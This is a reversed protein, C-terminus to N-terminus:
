TIPSTDVGRNNHGKSKNEKSSAVKDRGLCGCLLPWTAPPPHRRTAAPPKDMPGFGKTGCVPRMCHTSLQHTISGFWVGGQEYILGTPFGKARGMWSELKKWVRGVRGRGRECPRGGM